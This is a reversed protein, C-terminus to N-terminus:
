QDNNTRRTIRLSGRKDRKITLHDCYVERENSGVMNKLDKKANEFVRNHEYGNIYTISADIFQNDTSADRKVMNDVAIKDINLQIPEDYGVPEQKRVVYGWFDSVVAWMSDFYKEDRDVYAAEWKNNGFIVSLYAGDVKALHAYLQIQPMYYEIVGDMTNYSNTHKCEVISDSCMGDITGKIPVGDINRQYTYQHKTIFFAGDDAPMNEEFWRLNFDETYSGLQVALNRSLDDSEVLGTKIQWLELWNGQMIKVCDSGGIFGKREM